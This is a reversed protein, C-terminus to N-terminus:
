KRRRKDAFSKDIQWCVVAVGICWAIWIEMKDDKRKAKTLVGLVFEGISCIELVVLKKLITETSIFLLAVFRIDWQILM